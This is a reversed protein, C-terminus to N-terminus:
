LFSNVRSITVKLSSGTQTYGVDSQNYNYIMAQKFHTILM